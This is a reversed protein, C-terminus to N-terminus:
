CDELGVVVQCDAELGNNKLQFPLLVVQEDNGMLAHEPHQVAVQHGTAGSVNGVELERAVLDNFYSWDAM